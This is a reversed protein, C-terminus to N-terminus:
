LAIPLEVKFTSGEGEVSEVFVSGGMRRVLERTIYLGLGTGGIGRTLQPDLRYFKDFIRAQESTPIGLGHDVVTFSVAGDAGRVSVRVPGGDPSYKIANDVLNTLVQRVKDPDAAIPPLHDDIDLELEIRPPLHTRAAGIVIETLQAADCQEVAVHLTGSELRSAWLIDNVIRALRDAEVAIVDLLGERQPELAPEDRRLTLAAGYIAALPTRLEHSITSVFESKLREVRQEDTLDRFAYVTGGPFSVGSISLWREAGHLDVPLTEARSVEPARSVPARQSISAWGPIVELAPRGVITAAPLGTIVSAATNWLRVVGGDDILFVGDGVFALALAAQARHELEHFLLANDAGLAARGALANALAVDEPGFRRGTKTTFTIAGITRERATMPISVYSSLDMSRLLELHEDDTAAAVLHEDKVDLILQMEGSHVVVAPAQEQATSAPWRRHQEESLAASEEDSHASVVRELTGDEGVLHVVCGDALDPVVLDALAQLMARHDLSSGLFRGAEALMRLATEAGRRATIDVVVAGIGMIEGETDRTPFYSVLWTRRAGPEARTEGSLELDLIPQGTELVQRWLPELTPALEPLYESIKRGISEEVPVGNIAALADNVRVCRFDRDWFGLGVPITALLTELTGRSEIATEHLRANDVATAARKALHEAFDLDEDDYLQEPDSSVLMLSGLTRQRAKLPVVIASAMGLNRLVELQGPSRATQALLQDSIRRYLVSEGTRVVRGTGEPEDATPAWVDRSRIAWEIKDPDKHVVALRRIAGDDDILDVACWDAFRPVVLHAVNELTTEYDLSSALTSSAEALFRLQAGVAREAAYLRANDVAIAARRAVDGLLQLDEEHYARPSRSWAFTIAGLTEGRAVLPIAVASRPDLRLMLELHDTDYVTRRLSEEDMIEFLVPGGERLAQAAPQPSDWSPPFRDRLQELAQQQDADTAAVTVRRIETGEVVDVICWDALEGVVLRAVTSLTAAYDLSSSLVEGAEAVFRLRRERELASEYLHVNDIALAVRRALESALHFDNESYRGVRRSGFLIFGVARGRATLPVALASGLALRELMDDPLGTARLDNTLSERADAVLIPEGRLFAQIGPGPLNPDIPFREPVRKAYLKTLDADVNAATVRVLEEGESLYVACFDAFSQVVLQALAAFNTEYDLSAALLESVGVLLRRDEALEEQEAYIRATGIASAALSAVAGASRLDDDDFTKPSRYYFVLTGIVEDRHSLPMALFARNGEADHAARHEPTLWETSAIDGAVIPGDLSVTARNGQIAQGAAAVYEDSLDAFAQVGWTGTRVDRNWLAYADAALSHRALDLVHPLVEELDLTALLRGAAEVLMQLRSIEARQERVLEDVPVGVIQDTV